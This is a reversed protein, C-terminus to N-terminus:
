GFGLIALEIDNRHNVLHIAPGNGTGYNVMLAGGNAAKNARLNNDLKANVLPKDGVVAGFEVGVIHLRIVSLVPQLM